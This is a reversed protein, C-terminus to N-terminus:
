SVGTQGPNTTKVTIPPPNLPKLARHYENLASQAEEVAGNQRASQEDDPNSFHLLYLVQGAHGSISFTPIELNRSAFAPTILKQIHRRFRYQSGKALLSGAFLIVSVWQLHQRGDVLTWIIAGFLAVVVLACGATFVREEQIPTM